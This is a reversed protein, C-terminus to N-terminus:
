AAIVEQGDRPLHLQPRGAGHQLSLLRTLALIRHHELAARVSPLTLSLKAVRILTLLPRACVGVCVCVCPVQRRHHLHRGIAAAHLVDGGGQAGAACVCVCVVILLPTASRDAGVAVFACGLREGAPTGSPGRMGRYSRPRPPRLRVAARRAVSRSVSRRVVEGCGAADGAARRGIQGRRELCAATGVCLRCVGASSASATAGIWLREREWGGM